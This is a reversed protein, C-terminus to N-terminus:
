FSSTAENLKDSVRLQLSTEAHLRRPSFREDTSTSLICIMDQLKGMTLSLCDRTLRPMRSIGTREHKFILITFIFLFELSKSRHQKLM